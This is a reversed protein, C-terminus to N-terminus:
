PEKSVINREWWIKLKNEKPLKEVIPTIYFVAFLFVLGLVVLGAYIKFWIM